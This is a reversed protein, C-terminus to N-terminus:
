HPSGPYSDNTTDILDPRMADGHKTAITHIRPGFLASFAAGGHSGSAPKGVEM